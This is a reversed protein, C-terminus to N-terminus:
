FAGLYRILRKGQAINTILVNDKMDGIKMGEEQWFAVIHQRLEPVARTILPQLQTLKRAYAYHHGKSLAQDLLLQKGRELRDAFLIYGSGNEQYPVLIFYSEPLLPSLCHRVFLAHLKEGVMDCVDHARGLFTFCPTQKYYGEVKVRDGLRYRILGSQQTIILQYTKGQVTNELRCLEGEESEFELFVDQILPVYSPKEGLPVTIAAETALLGKGQLHVEPFYMQLQQAQPRSMASDWCSIFHLHPWIQQWNIAKAQLFRRRHIPLKEALTLAHKEIYELIVLLYSPSWISIIELKEEKLLAMALAEINKKKPMLLFPSLLIRLLWPLYERDDSFGAAESQSSVSIFIKGKKLRVGHRMADYVWIRFLRAFSALQPRTYPIDKRSGSSGSTPEVHIIPHPTIIAAKAELQAAIWPEIAEYDQIPLKKAFDAYDEEGTVAYHKGYETSALEKVIRALLAAQTAAPSSLKSQFDRYDRRCLWSLILCVGKHWM